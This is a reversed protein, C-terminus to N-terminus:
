SWRMTPSTPSARAPLGSLPAAVRRQDRDDGHARGRADRPVGRALLERRPWPGAAGRGGGTGAGARHRRPAPVRGGGGRGRRHGPHRRCRRAGARVRGRGPPGRGRVALWATGAARPALRAPRLAVASGPPRDRHRGRAGRDDGPRGGGRPARPARQHRRHHRAGPLGTPGGRGCADRWRRGGPHGPGPRRADVAGQRRRWRGDGPRHVHGRHRRRGARDPGLAAVGSRSRQTQAAEVALRDVLDNM